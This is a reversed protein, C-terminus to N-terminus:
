SIREYFLVTVLSNEDFEDGYAKKMSEFLGSYVRSKEEHEKEVYRAPIDKFTTYVKGTIKGEGAITQITDTDGVITEQLDIIDGKRVRNYWKIGLRITVGKEGVKTDIKHLNDLVFKQSTSM